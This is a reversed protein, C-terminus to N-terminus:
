QNRNICQTGTLLTETMDTMERGELTSATNLLPYLTKSLAVPVSKGIKKVSFLLEFNWAFRLRSFATQVCYSLSM